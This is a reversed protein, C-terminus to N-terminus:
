SSGRMWRMPLGGTIAPAEHLRRTEDSVPGARVLSVDEFRKDRAPILLHIGNLRYFLPVPIGAPCGTEQCDPTRTSIIRVDPRGQVREAGLRRTDGSELFRQLPEVFSVHLRDVDHLLLTGGHLMELMGPKDRGARLRGAHGFLDSTIDASSANLQLFQSRSSQQHILRAVLTTDAEREGTILVPVDSRAACGVDLALSGAQWWAHGDLRPGVPLRDRTLPTMTEGTAFVRQRTVHGGASPM